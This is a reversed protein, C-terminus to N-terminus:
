KLPGLDFHERAFQVADDISPPVEVWDGSRSGYEYNAQHQADELAAHWTDGAFEGSGTYRYLFYSAGSEEIVLWEADPM